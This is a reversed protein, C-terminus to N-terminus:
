ENIIDQIIYALRSVSSCDLQSLGPQYDHSPITLKIHSKQGDQFNDLHHRDESHSRVRIEVFEHVMAARAM